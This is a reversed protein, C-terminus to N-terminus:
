ELRRTKTQHKVKIWSKQYISIYIFKDVKLGKRSNKIANSNWACMFLKVNYAYITYLYGPHNRTYANKRMERLRETEEGSGGVDRKRGVGSPYLYRLFLRNGFCTINLHVSWYHKLYYIVLFICSLIPM